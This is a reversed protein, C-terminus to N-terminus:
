KCSLRTTSELRCTEVYSWGESSVTNILSGDAPRRCSLRIGPPLAGQVQREQGDCEGQWVLRVAEGSTAKFSQTTKLHAGHEEIVFLMDPPVEEGPLMVSQAANAVYTGTLSGQGASTCAGAAVALLACVLISRM